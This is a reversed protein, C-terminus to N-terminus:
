LFQTLSYFLSWMICVLLLYLITVIKESRKASTRNLIHQVLTNIYMVVFTISFFLAIAFIITKM